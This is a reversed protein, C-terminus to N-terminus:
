PAHDDLNEDSLTMAHPGDTWLLVCRVDHNPYIRKLAERYAAMQRLYIVAVGSEDKPPPRNTKFDVITVTGPSIALRDVQASIIHGGIEGVIPVEARSDPGFFGAFDPHDLIALTEAAIEEVASADLGHVARALYNKAARERTEPALDPLTQLLAHVLRGRKFRHGDDVGLPSRVPPDDDSPRSPALPRTPTPELPADREAWTPLEEAERRAQTKDSRSDADASQAASIRLAPEGFGLDIEDASGLMATEMLEYWCGDARGRKNEWGCVYLRDRARTIAVYLLRRYEQMRSARADDRLGQCVSEENDKFGPWLVAEGTWLLRDDLRGDPVTCTDPLFVVNAQLGKAGHVTMVRVEARGHELDRKVQTQAAQLWQLFGQLSAVHEREYNLALALFEDIPDHAEFGLRGVLKRRGGTPGLVDSFFEFPPTFDARNLFHTLSQAAESWNAREPARRKLEEWLTGKRGRALALLDDDDLDFLPSKLVEALSLDDQPLLVFRALAMLDMVALQETLSMRDSGAVPIGRQKLCRIMEEAFQGRRRVLIMIDGAEIPRAASQLIEGSDLWAKIQDAVRNALRVQPSSAPVRDLPADWPDLDPETQPKETPWLEILGAQGARNSLHRLPREGFTLGDAAEPPAFVRDVTKLVAWVSRFSLPMEVSKWDRGAQAAKQSFHIRMREFAAPDAGQFSYISQKEDGVAFVTRHGARASEGAFFEAALAGIVDWQEPSTDQAEDVLIHDIGGDLKFHVWAAAGDGRLLDRAELILDDYDLLGRTQKLREYNELLAEALSLLATTSQVIAAAKLKDAMAVIRAQEVLIIEIADSAAERAGKTILGREARPEGAATLFVKAYDGTLGHTRWAPNKLWGRITGARAQDTKTGQDLAECLKFLGPEDFSANEAAAALISPVTEDAAMGLSQRAAAIVGDISGYRAIIDRLQRRNGVLERIVGDFGAEDVIAALRNLTDSLRPNRGAVARSFIADRAEALLEAETREDIVAFHPAVAAELPFQGLLSECFAHITRIKLGGPADLVEAFLRRAPALDGEFSRGLLKGIATKLEADPLAAWSGLRESLRNAMEAAAAKTFTLCLIKAPKTGALLLRSIRDVLVRTKGTGANASVWVSQGPDAATRQAAMADNFDRTEPSM